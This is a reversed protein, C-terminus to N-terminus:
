NSNTSHPPRLDLVHVKVLIQDDKEESIRKAEDCLLKELEQLGIKEKKRDPHQWERDKAITVLLCGCSSNEAVLYKRMLQQSIADRLNKASRQDALKLEIVAQQESVVSRLRIDTEMEEGTTAEQDVKYIGRETNKLVRTIERRLVREETINAWNERPSVDQRLLDDIEDLRDCLISFMAEKTSPPAEGTNNLITAEDISLAGSDIEKAWNEEAVALIRDKFDACLPDNAMELKTAMAEKGKADLLANVIWRRACEAHDRSDPSYAGEHKADDISRVHRYALRVLRLLLQPTFAPTRLNISDRDDGFLFGLWEVAKTREGPEMESVLDELMNVGYEPDLRVLASLWIPSVRESKGEQFRERAIELIRARIDQDAHELLVGIVQRLLGADGQSTCADGVNDKNRDLWAYLRPVFLRAVSESAYGINQLLMSHGTSSQKSNLEWDLENGLIADVADSHADVLSELWRPLATLEIPAFRAALIAEEKSIKTAWLPDEAEAYIAALGLGWCVLWTNREHEPRESPLTPHDNRWIKMLTLRLRDATEKEFHEEILRRNWGSAQSNEGDRSMVRWLNWATGESKEDSFASEPHQTLHRWFEIWSEKDKAKQGEKKKKNKARRKEWKKMEKEHGTSELSRDIEAVLDPQDTVLKRLGSVHERPNENSLSLRIAAELLLKRDLKDRTRDSLGAKIWRLDREARLEVRDEHHIIEALRESPTASSHLSQIFTDVSWFLQENANASFNSLRERLAAQADDRSHESNELRLALISAYIWDDSPEKGLGRLCTAALAVCLHPRDSVINPWEPRWRLGDSLLSVLGERLAELEALELEATAITRPLLWRLYGINRDDEEIWRLAQCLEDISLNQPFLQPLVRRAIDQPWSDVGNAVDAAITPLRSDKIAILADVASLREGTSATIDSAVGYAIDSCENIRGAEILHLLILRVELNEVGAEWLSTLETALEPSAFRHVQIQPVSIGRWGGWGFRDVFARLAQIRQSRTLSKPDGEDFLVAPEHNRLMEFIRDERHALWGAIPRKSPLVITNDNTQTFILRELATISMGRERLKHLREAALYELPSRHHFRVRGYSAFRFLPRELLAKIENPKWDSLIKAPDLAAEDAAIDSEASHRITMRRTMMMALALSSAGEIARDISLEAPESRDARPQLKVAVNERVQERHTRIRKHERWDACLEILDQPRQAFEEANRNKLDQLLKEADEVGQTNAFELIQEDSFPVLAVTRWDPADSDAANRINRSESERMAIRAFSEERSEASPLPPAPLLDRVLQQDFPIPRTTVVIRCQPLKTGIERRLLTLASKFSQRTLNLEDISDLFFTAIDSQSSHWADLREEEEPDLLERIGGKELQSLEIFFAPEGSSWLSKQQEECEYTKGAGAESIILVRRSLLLDSWTLGHSWGLSAQFSPQDAESLKGEPIDQFTREIM